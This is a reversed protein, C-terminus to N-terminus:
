LAQVKINQNYEHFKVMLKDNILYFQNFIKNILVDYNSVKM